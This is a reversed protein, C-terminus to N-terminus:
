KKSYDYEKYHKRHEVQHNAYAIICYVEQVRGDTGLHRSVPRHHRHRGDTHKGSRGQTVAHHVHRSVADHCRGVKREIIHHADEQCHHHCVHHQKIHEVRQAHRCRGGDRHHEFQQASGKGNRQQLNHM